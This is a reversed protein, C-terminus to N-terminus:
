RYNSYKSSVREGKSAGQKKVQLQTNSISDQPETVVNEPVKNHAVYFSANLGIFPFVFVNHSEM